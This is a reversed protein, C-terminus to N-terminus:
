QEKNKKIFLILGKKKSFDMFPFKSYFTQYKDQIFIRVEQCEALDYNNIIQCLLDEFAPKTPKGVINGVLRSEYYSIYSLLSNDNSLIFMAQSDEKLYDILSQSIPFFEWHCNYWNIKTKRLIKLIESTLPRFDQQKIQECSPLASHEILAAPWKTVNTFGTKQAVRISKMNQLGTVYGIQSIQKSELYKLANKTLLTGIGQNHSDARVRLTELYGLRQSNFIYIIANICGLIEKNENELALFHSKHDNLIDVFGNILYDNSWVSEALLKIQSFDTPLVKRISFNDVISVKDKDKDLKNDEQM